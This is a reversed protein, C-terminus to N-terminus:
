EGDLKRSSFLDVDADMGFDTLRSLFHRYACCRNSYGEAQWRTIGTRDEYRSGNANHLQWTELRKTDGRSVRM